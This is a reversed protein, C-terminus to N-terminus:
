FLRLITQSYDSFLRLITKPYGSFLRLITKPYDLLLRTQALLWEMEHLHLHNQAFRVQM